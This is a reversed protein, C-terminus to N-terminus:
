NRAEVKAITESLNKNTQLIQSDQEKDAGRSNIALLLVDHMKKNEEIQKQSFSLQEQLFHRETEWQRQKELSASSEVHKSEEVKHSFFEKVIDVEKKKEEDKMRVQAELQKSHSELFGLREQYGRNELTLQEM